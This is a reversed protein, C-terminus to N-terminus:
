RAAVDVEYSDDGPDEDPLQDEHRSVPSLLIREEWSTILGDKIQTPLSLELYIVDATVRYLLYWTRQVSTSLRDANGDPDASVDWLEMQGNQEVARLATDGKPYKTSPDLGDLGTFQDGSSVVIAFEGSPHLTRCFNNPNDYGWGAPVLEERLFRVTKGYWTLGAMTPPDLDTSLKAEADARLVARTLQEARLGLESLRDVAHSDIAVVRM